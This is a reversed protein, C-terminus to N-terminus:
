MVWSERGLPAFDIVNDCLYRGIEGYPRVKRFLTYFSVSLVATSSVPLLWFQLDSNMMVNGAAIDNHLNFEAGGEPFKNGGLWVAGAIGKSISPDMLYASALDTIAGLNLVYLPTGQKHAEEMIFRAGESELPTYEDPIAHQAGHLVPVTGTLGMKDLVALIEDYSKDMTGNIEEPVTTYHVSGEMSYAKYFHAAIIGVVKLTPCMLAYAIAFQDDVENKADTSIIVRRKKEPPVFFVSDKM